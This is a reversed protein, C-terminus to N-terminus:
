NIPKSLDFDVQFLRGPRSLNYSLKQGPMVSLTWTNTVSVDLGNEVFMTKSFEDVPFSQKTASGMHATDGGYMSVDDPTGDDHRHDHKLRLGTETKSVIWTRSKDEGVHLPIRIGESMDADCSPAHIVIRAQRWTTDSENSQSVTGLYSHGCISKLNNYFQTQPDSAFANNSFGFVISIALLSKIRM